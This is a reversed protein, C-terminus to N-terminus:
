VYANHPAFFLRGGPCPACPRCSDSWPVAVTLNEDVDRLARLPCRDRHGGEIHEAVVPRTKWLRMGEADSFPGVTSDSSDERMPCRMESRIGTLGRFGHGFM